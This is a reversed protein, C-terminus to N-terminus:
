ESYLGIRNGETDLILAFYGRGEAQIKAKGIHIEAGLAPVKNLITDLEDGPNFYIITGDNSPRFDKAKSIMGCVKVEDEPFFAM